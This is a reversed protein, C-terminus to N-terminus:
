KKGTQLFYISQATKPRDGMFEKPHLFLCSFATNWGAMHRWYFLWIDGIFFLLRIFICERKLDLIRHFVSYSLEISPGFILLRGMLYNDNAEGPNGEWFSLISPLFPIRRKRDFNGPRWHAQM